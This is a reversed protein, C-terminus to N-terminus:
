FVFEVCKLFMQEMTILSASMGTIGLDEKKSEVSDLADPLEQSYPVSIVVKGEDEGIIQAKPNLEDRVKQTDCWNKISM